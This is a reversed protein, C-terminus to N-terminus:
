YARSGAQKVQIHGYIDKFYVEFIDMSVGELINVHGERSRVCVPCLSVSFPFGQCQASVVSPSIWLMAALSSAKRRTATSKM